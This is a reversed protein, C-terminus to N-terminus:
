LRRVPAGQCHLEDGLKDTLDAQWGSNEVEYVSIAVEGLGEKFVRLDFTDGDDAPGCRASDNGLFACSGVFAEQCHAPRLVM